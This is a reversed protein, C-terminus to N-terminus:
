RRFPSGPARVDIRVPRQLVAHSTFTVRMPGYGLVQEVDFTNWERRLIRASIWLPVYEPYREIDAALDFIQECSYPLERDVREIM